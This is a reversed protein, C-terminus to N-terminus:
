MDFKIWHKRGTYASDLDTIELMAFSDKKLKKIYSKYNAEYESYRLDYACQGVRKWGGNKLSYVILSKYKSTCSTYYEGIEEIGDEDIDGVSFISSPHCCYSDTKLRPLTTDTFYYSQGYNEECWNIPNLVFVSDPRLNHNLDGVNKFGEYSELLNKKSYTVPPCSDSNYKRFYYAILGNQLKLISDQYYSYDNSFVSNQAPVLKQLYLTSDHYDRDIIKKSVKPAPVNNNNCAIVPYFPLFFFIIYRLIASM